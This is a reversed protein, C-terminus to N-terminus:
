EIDTFIVFVLMEDSLFSFAGKAKLIYAAIATMEWGDDDNGPWKPIILKEYGNKEGYEKVKFMAETVNELLYPNDWSWMWTNSQDSISGVVKFSMTVQRDGKISFIMKGSEQEFDMREYDNLEYKKTIIEQQEMLYERSKKLLDTFQKSDM